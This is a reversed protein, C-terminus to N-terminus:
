ILYDALYCLKFVKSMEVVAGRNLLVVEMVLSLFSKTIIDHIQHRVKNGTQSIVNEM